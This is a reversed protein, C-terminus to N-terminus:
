AISWAHVVRAAPVGTVGRENRGVFWGPARCIAAAFTQSTRGSSDDLITVPVLGVDGACARAPDIKRWHLARASDRLAKMGGGRGLLRAAGRRSCYRGRFRRAPDKGTLAKVIDAVALMCDDKGWQMGSAAWRKTAEDIIVPARLRILHADM